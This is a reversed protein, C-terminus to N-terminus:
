EIPLQGPSLYSAVTRHRSSLVQRGAALPRISGPQLSHLIWSVPLDNLGISYQAALFDDEAVSLRASVM